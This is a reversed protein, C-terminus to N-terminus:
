EVGKGERQGNVDQHHQENGQHLVDDHGHASPPHRVSTNRALWWLAILTGTGVVLLAILKFLRSSAVLALGGFFLCFLYYVTVIQRQSFGLDLLRYHLHDRGAHTPSEGRWWRSVILWAM